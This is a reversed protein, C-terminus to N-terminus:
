YNRLQDILVFVTMNVNPNISHLYRKMEKITSGSTIFDDCILAETGTEMAEFIKRHEGTDFKLFNYFGERAIVPLFRKIKFLEGNKKMNDFVREVSRVAREESVEDRYKDTQMLLRKAKDRDFRINEYTDKVLKIDLFKGNTYELMLSDLIAMVGDTKIDSFDTMFVIDFSDLKKYADMHLMGIEIFDFVSDEYFYVPNNYNHKFLKRFEKIDKQNAEPNFKYAYFYTLGNETKIGSEDTSLHLIDTNLDKTYDFDYKGEFNKSIGDKIVVNNM